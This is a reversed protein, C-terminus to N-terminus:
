WLVECLEAAKRSWRKDKELASVKEFVGKHHPRTYWKGDRWQSQVVALVGFIDGAYCYGKKQGSINGIDYRMRPSARGTVEKIVALVIHAYYQQSPEVKCFVIDGKEINFQKKKSTEDDETGAWFPKFTCCDHAQVLPHLSHGASIYAVTCGAELEDRMKCNREDQLIRERVEYTRGAHRQSDQVIPPEALNTASRQRKKTPGDAAEANRVSPPAQKPTSPEKKVQAGADGPAM